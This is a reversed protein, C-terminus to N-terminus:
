LKVSCPRSCGSVCGSCDEPHASPQLLKGGSVEELVFSETARHQNTKTIRLRWQRAIESWSLAAQKILQDKFDMHVHPCACVREQESQAIERKVYKRPVSTKLTLEPSKQASMDLRLCHFWNQWAMPKAKCYTGFFTPDPFPLLVEKLKRRVHWVGGKPVEDRSSIHLSDSPNQQERSCTM